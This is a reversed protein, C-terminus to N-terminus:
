NFPLGKKPTLNITLSLNGNPNLQFAYSSIKHDEREANVFIFDGRFIRFSSNWNHHYRKQNMNEIILPLIKLSGTKLNISCAYPKNKLEGTIFAYDGYITMEKIDLSKPLEGIKKSIEMNSIEFSVFAFHKKKDLFVYHIQSKNSFTNQLKLDENLMVKVIQDKSVLNKSYKEFRWELNDDVDDENKSIVIFGNEGM